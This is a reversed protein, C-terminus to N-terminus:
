ENNQSLQFNQFALDIKQNGLKMENETVSHIIVNHPKYKEIFIFYFDTKKGSLQSVGRSYWSAQLALYKQISQHLKFVTTSQTFKLDIIANSNESYWDLRSKCSIKFEEDFWFLSVETIGNQWIQRIKPHIWFIKQINMLRDWENAALVKKGFHMESFESWRKKGLVGRQRLHDPARQYQQEFLEPELLLSHGASGFEMAQINKYGQSKNQEFKLWKKLETQNLGAQQQYEEFTLGSVFQNLFGNNM